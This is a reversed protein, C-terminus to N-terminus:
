AALLAALLHWIVKARLSVLPLRHVAEALDLTLPGIDNKLSPQVPIYAGGLLLVQM